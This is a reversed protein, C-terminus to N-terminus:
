HITAIYNEIEESKGFGVTPNNFPPLDTNQPSLIEGSEVEDGFTPTMRFNGKGRFNLIVAQVGTLICIQLGTEESEFFDNQNLRMRVTKGKLSSEPCYGNWMNSIKIETM